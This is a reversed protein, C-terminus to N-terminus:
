TTCDPCRTALAQQLDRPEMDIVRGRLRYDRDVGDARSKFYINSEIAEHAHKCAVGEYTTSPTECDTSPM